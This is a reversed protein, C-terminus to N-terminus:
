SKNLDVTIPGKTTVLIIRHPMATVGSIKVLFLKGEVVKNSKYWESSGEDFVYITYNEVPIVDLIDLIGHVNYLIIYKENYNAMVFKVMPNGERVDNLIHSSIADVNMFTNLLLISISLAVLTLTIESVLSSVGKNIRLQKLAYAARHRPLRM